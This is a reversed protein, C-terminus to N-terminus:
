TAQENPTKSKLIEIFTSQDKLIEFCLDNDEKKTAGKVSDYAFNIAEIPYENQLIVDYVDYIDVYSLEAEKKSYMAARIISKINPKDSAHFPLVKICLDILTDRDMTSVLVGKSKVKRWDKEIEPEDNSMEKETMDMSPQEDPAVDPDPTSSEPVSTKLDVPAGEKGSMAWSAIADKLAGRQQLGIMYHTTIDRMDSATVATGDMAENAVDFIERYLGMYNRAGLLPDTVPKQEAKSADLAYINASGNVEASVILETDSKHWHSISLGSLGKEGNTSEFRFKTGECKSDMHMRDKLLNVNLKEGNDDVVVIGQRHIAVRKQGETPDKAPYVKIVTAEFADIIMKDSMGKIEEIKKM